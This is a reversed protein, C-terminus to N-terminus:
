ITSSVGTGQAGDVRWGRWAWESIQLPRGTMICETEDVPGGPSVPLGLGQRAAAKAAAQAAQAAAQVAAQAVAEAAQAAAQAAAEGAKRSAAAAESGAAAAQGVQQRAQQEGGAGGLQEQRPAQGPPCQDLGGALHTSLQQLDLTPPGAAAPCPPHLPTPADVLPPSTGGMPGGWHLEPQADEEVVALELASVPVAHSRERWCGPAPCGRHPRPPPKPAAAAAGPRHATQAPVMPCLRTPATIVLSNM